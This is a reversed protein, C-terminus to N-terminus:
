SVPPGAGDTPTTPTPKPPPTFLDVLVPRLAGVLSRVGEEVGRRRSYVSAVIDIIRGSTRDTTNLAGKIVPLADRLPPIVHAHLWRLGFALLLMLAALLLIILTAEIILLVSAASALGDLPSAIEALPM